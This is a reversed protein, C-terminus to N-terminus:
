ITTYWSFVLVKKCFEDLNLINKIQGPKSEKNPFPTFKHSCQIENYMKCKKVGKYQFTVPKYLWTM